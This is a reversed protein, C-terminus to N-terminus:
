KIAANGTDKRVAANTPAAISRPTKRCKYPRGKSVKNAVQPMLKTSICATRLKNPACFTATSFGLQILPPTCTSALKTSGQFRKNMTTKAMSTNTPMAKSILWVRKPKNTRPTVWFRAMADQM